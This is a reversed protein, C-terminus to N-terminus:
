VQWCPKERPIRSSPHRGRPRGMESRPNWHARHEVVLNRLLRAFETAEEEVGHLNGSGPHDLQLDRFREPGRPYPLTM